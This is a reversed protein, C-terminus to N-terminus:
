GVSDHRVVAGSEPHVSLGHALRAPHRRKHLAQLKQHAEPTHHWHCVAATTGAVKHHSWFPCWWHAKCNHQKYVALLGFVGLMGTAGAVSSFFAYLRGTEPWWLQSVPEVFHPWHWLVLVATM